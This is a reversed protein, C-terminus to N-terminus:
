AFAECYSIWNDHSITRGFDAQELPEMRLREADAVFRRGGGGIGIPFRREMTLTVDRSFFLLRISVIVECRGRVDSEGETYLLAMNFEVSVTLISLVTVSGGARIFASWTTKGEFYQIRFGALLYASGSAVALDISLVGGFAISCDFERIGRGNFGVVVHGGGGFITVAVLFPDSAEGFAFRLMLEKGPLLPLVLSSLFRLNLLSFVGFGINPLRLSMTVTIAGPSFTLKPGQEGFLSKPLM